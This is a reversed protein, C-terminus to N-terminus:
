VWHDCRVSSPLLNISKENRGQDQPPLRCCLSVNVKTSLSGITDRFKNWSLTELRGAKASKILKFSCVFSELLLQFISEVRGGHTTFDPVFTLNFQSKTEVKYQSSNQGLGLGLGWLKRPKRHDKLNTTVESFFLSERRMIDTQQDLCLPDRCLSKSGKLGSIRGAMQRTATATFFDGSIVITQDSSVDAM